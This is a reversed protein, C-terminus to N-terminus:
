RSGSSGDRGGQPPAGGASNPSFREQPGPAREAQLIESVWEEADLLSRCRYVRSRATDTLIWVKHAERRARFRRDRSEYYGGAVHDLHPLRLMAM